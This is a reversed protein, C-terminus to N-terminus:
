TKQNAYKRRIFDLTDKTAKIMYNFKKEEMYTYFPWSIMNDFFSNTNSLNNKTKFNRFLKFRNLPCNQVIAKVGYKQSIIKIFLDRKETSRSGIFQAVLCHYVNKYGKVIRQFKLEKYGLFSNVFKNARTIRIKNLKDIRKILEVGLACQIEGICFNSPWFNKAADIVNLMSPKWYIKPNKRKYLDVGNHAIAKIKKDFKKNNILLMGGEGLTTIIKNSHFSFCAIDGFSGTKKKNISSGLSQACDEIVIIKRKKAYSVIERINVPMGYLHVIIIAKTRKTVQKKITDLSAVFTHPDIDAWKIKAGYRAYSIASACWTHAPVIIEDDKKTGILIASLDLANSCNAVAYAKGNGGIYKSFLKEFQLLHKGQTFPEAKEMANLVVQKEKTTYKISNGTWDIKFNKM